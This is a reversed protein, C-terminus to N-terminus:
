RKPSKGLVNGAIHPEERLGVARKIRASDSQLLHVAQRANTAELQAVRTARPVEAGTEYRQLVRLLDREPFTSHYGYASLRMRAKELAPDLGILGPLTRTPLRHYGSAVWATMDRCADPLARTLGAAEAQGIARVVSTLRSDGWRLEDVTQVFRQRAPEQSRVLTLELGEEAEALLLNRAAFAGTPSHDTSARTRGDRPASHLVEPCTTSIHTVFRDLAAKAVPFGAAIERELAGRASLYARTSLVDGPASGSRGCGVVLVIMLITPAHLAILRARPGRLASTFMGVRGQCRCPTSGATHHHGYLSMHPPWHLRRRVSLSGKHRSSPGDSDALGTATIHVIFGSM